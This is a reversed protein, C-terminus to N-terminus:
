HQQSIGQPGALSLSTGGSGCDTLSLAVATSKMRSTCGSSFLCHPSHWPGFFRSPPSRAAADPRSNRISAGVFDAKPDRFIRDVHMVQLGRYQMQQSEVMLLQCVCKLATSEPESINM